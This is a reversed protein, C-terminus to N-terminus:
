GWGIELGHKMAYEAMKLLIDAYRTVQSESRGGDIITPGTTIRSMGNEDKTVRPEGRDTSPEVVMRSRAQESNLLKLLQQRFAPLDERDVFGSYWEGSRMAEASVLGLEQIIAAANSNAMNLEPGDSKFEPYSGSGHCYPCDESPDYVNKGDDCAYCDGEVDRGAMEYRNKESDFNYLSFTVSEKIIEHLRM